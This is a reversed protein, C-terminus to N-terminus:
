DVPLTFIEKISRMVHAYVDTQAAGSSIAAAKIACTKSAFMNDDDPELNLWFPWLELVLALSQDVQIYDDPSRPM